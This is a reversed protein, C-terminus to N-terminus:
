RVKPNPNSLFGDVYLEGNLSGNFTDFSIVSGFYNTEVFHVGNIFHFYYTEADSYNFTIRTKNLRYYKRKYQSKKEIENLRYKIIDNKELMEGESSFWKEEFSSLIANGKRGKIQKIDFNKIQNKESSVNHASEKEKIIGYMFGCYIREIGDNCLISTKKNLIQDEKNKEKKLNEIEEDLKKVKM